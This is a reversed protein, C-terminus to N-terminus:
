IKQLLSGELTVAPSIDKMGNHIAFEFIDKSYLATSTLPMTVDYVNLTKAM